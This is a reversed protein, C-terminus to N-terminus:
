FVRCNAIERVFVFAILVKLGQERADAGDFAHIEHAVHGRAARAPEREDLHRCVLLSLGRDPREVIVIEPLLRM